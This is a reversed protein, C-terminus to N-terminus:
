PRARGGPAAASIGSARALLVGVEARLPGLALVEEGRDVSRDLEQSASRRCAMEGDFADRVLARKRAELPEAIEERV